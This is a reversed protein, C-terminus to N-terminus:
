PLPRETTGADSRRWYPRVQNASSMSARTQRRTNTRASCAPPTRPGRRRSADVVHHEASQYPGLARCHGSRRRQRRRPHHFRRQPEQLERIRHPQVRAGRCTRLLVGRLWYSGRIVLTWHNERHAGSSSATERGSVKGEHPQGTPASAYKRSERTDPEVARWGTSACATGRRCWHRLRKWSVAPGSGDNATAPHSDNSPPHSQRQSASKVAPLLALSGVPGRAGPGVLTHSRPM